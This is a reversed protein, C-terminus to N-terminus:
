KLFTRSRKPFVIKLSSFGKDNVTEKFILLSFWMKVEGANKSSFREPLIKLSKNLIGSFMCEKTSLRCFHTSSCILSGLSLILSNSLSYKYLNLKSKVWNFSSNPSNTCMLSKLVRDTKYLLNNCFSVIEKTPSGKSPKCITPKNSVRKSSKLFTMRSETLSPIKGGPLT